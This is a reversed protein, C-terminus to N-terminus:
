GSSGAADPGAARRRREAEARERGVQQWRPEAECCCIADDCWTVDDHITRVPPNQRADTM